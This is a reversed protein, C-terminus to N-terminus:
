TSVPAPKGREALVKDCAKQIDVLELRLEALHRRLVEGVDDPPNEGISAITNLYRRVCLKKAEVLKPMLFKLSLYALYQDEPGVGGEHPDGGLHEILDAIEAAHRQNTEILEQLRLRLDADARSVYPSGEGMFRFISNYEAELLSNLSDIIAVPPPM